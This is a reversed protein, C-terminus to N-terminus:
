VMDMNRADEEGKVKYYKCHEDGFCHHYGDLRNGFIGCIFDKNDRSDYIQWDSHICQITFGDKDKM